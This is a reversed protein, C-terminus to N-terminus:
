MKLFSLHDIIDTALLTMEEKEKVAKDGARGHAYVGILTAELSSYGQAILGTIIGTLVDGSGGTAMGPNGSTNFYLRGQPTTITTYADKFVIICNYKASMALQKEIRENSDNFAGALRNFEKPHPTLVSLAPIKKLLEKNKSIINIADADFVIPHKYTDLLNDIIKTTVENVGLGPGIGVVKYSSMDPLIDLYADGNSIVMAEPITSQIIEYGCEPVISTVLGAGSSLCSKTSLIAAGIKGKSGCILAAHGYTGKHSFRKRKKLLQKVKSNLLFFKSDVDNLFQESLGIDVVDFKSIISANEPFFFSLKPRQFTIVWDSKVIASKHSNIKDGFLGSPMDISIIKCSSQNINKVIKAYFGELPRTLGSGFLGDILINYSNFTISEDLKFVKEIRDYNIKNDRSRNGQCDISYVDVLYGENLLLRAVVFADGGNNGCGGLVAIKDKKSISSTLKKYFSISAREMLDLSSIPENTITFADALQTQPISM